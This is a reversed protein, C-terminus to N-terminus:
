DFHQSLIRSAKPNSQALEILAQKFSSFENSMENELYEKFGSFDSMNGLQCLINAAESFKEERLLEEIMPYANDESMMGGLLRPVALHSVNLGEASLQDLAKQSGDWMILKRSLLSAKQPELEGIKTIQDRIKTHNTTSECKESVQQRIQDQFLSKASISISM